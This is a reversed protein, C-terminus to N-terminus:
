VLEAHVELSGPIPELCLRCDVFLGIEDPLQVHGDELIMEQTGDQADLIRSRIVPDLEDAPDAPHIFQLPHHILLAVGHGKGEEGRPNVIEDLDGIRPHDHGRFGGPEFRLESAPQKNM